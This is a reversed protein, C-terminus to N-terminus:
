ISRFSITSGRKTTEIRASVKEIRSDQLKAHAIVTEVEKKLQAITTDQEQIQLDQKQVKRHEKLFENLLMVNIQEYRVSDPEGKKNRGVLDPAAEAVEEAILGFSIRQTADYERNYRFKVPKLAFMVESAKDMPQIDHKFRRSSGNLNSRGLRGASDITVYDPDIGIVPQVNSYINGIFCSNDINEGGVNGICIVNSATTVNFGANEGVGANGSGTMNSGLADHGIATNSFGATNASLAGTGIGTNSSGDANNFLAEIGVATNFSGTDNAFLASSGFASNAEGTTNGFLAGNGFASNFSAEENAPDGDNYFLAEAGTATNSQGTRNAFLAEPGSATNNSGDTNNFLAFVGHAANAEGTTNSFLAGPALPPIKTRLPQL